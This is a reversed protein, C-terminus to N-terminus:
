VSSTLLVICNRRVQLEVKYDAVSSENLNSVFYEPGNEPDYFLTDFNSKEDVVLTGNKWIKCQRVFLVM